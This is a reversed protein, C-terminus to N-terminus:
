RSLKDTRKLVNPPGGTKSRDENKEPARAVPVHRERGHELGSSSPRERLRFVIRKRAPGPAEDVGAGPDYEAETAGPQVVEVLRRRAEEYIGEVTADKLPLERMMLWASDRAVGDRGVLLETAARAMSLTDTPEALTEGRVLEPHERAFREAERRLKDISGGCYADAVKSLSEAGLASKGKRVNTVWAKSVGIKEALAKVETGDIGILRHRVYATIKPDVQTAM